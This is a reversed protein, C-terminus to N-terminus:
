DDDEEFNEMDDQECSMVTYYTLAIPADDIYESIWNELKKATQELNPEEKITEYYNTMCDFVEAPDLNKELLFKLCPLRCENYNFEHSEWIQLLKKIVYDIQEETLEKKEHRLLYMQHLPSFLRSAVLSHHLNLYDFVFFARLVDDSLESTLKLILRRYRSFNCNGSMLLITGILDINVPLIEPISKLSEIMQELQDLNNLKEDFHQILDPFLSIEEMCNAIANKTKPSNIWHLYDLAEINLLVWTRPDQSLFRKKFKELDGVIVDVDDVNEEFRLNLWRINVLFIIAPYDFHNLAFDYISSEYSLNLRELFFIFTKISISLDNGTHVKEGLILLKYIKSFTNEKPSDIAYLLWFLYLYPIEDLDSIEELREETPNEPNIVNELFNKAGIWDANNIYQNYLIDLFEKQRRSRRQQLEQDNESDSNRQEKSNSDNGSLILDRLTEFAEQIRQFQDPHTEPRFRKILKSYAKRLDNFSANQSDLNFLEWNSKPWQSFDDPLKNNEDM